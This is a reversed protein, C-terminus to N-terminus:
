HSHGLHPDVSGTAQALKLQVAGKSVVKEGESLGYLIERRKGDYAGVKVERKEFFDGVSNVYVYYTGMEEILSEEPVCICEQGDDCIIYAEVYTGPILGSVADVSFVVPLLPSEKSVNRGYSLLKGNVEGLTYSKGSSIIRFTASRISPLMSMYRSQVNAHIYYNRNESVVFLTTGAAVYEGEGIRVENVFGDVPSIIKQNGSAFGNNLSMYLAESSEMEAKVKLLESKSVIKDDVLEKKREYEAKARTYDARAEALKVGMDGDAFNESVLEALVQGKKVSMGPVIDRGAYNLTGGGKAVLVSEDGIALEVMAMSRIVAGFPSKCSKIIEMGVSKQLKESFHLGNDGHKMEDAHVDNSEHDGEHKHLDEHEHEHEHKGEHEHISSEDNHANNHDHEHNHCSFLFLVSILFSLLTTKPSFISMYENNKYYDSHLIINKISCGPQM